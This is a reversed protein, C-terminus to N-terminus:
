THLPLGALNAVAVVLRHPDIPKTIHRQFGSAFAKEADERRAYATLAIAPTRGGESTSLGRVRRMLEYGDVDPMGVDSVIVDPRVSAVKALAEESSRAIEVGGGAEKLITAILEVVDEDDDVVLVRTGGLKPLPGPAPEGIRAPEFRASIKQMPIEVVLTAGRGKGESEAHVSGGHALVLQRVIALGLGLGGHHRTTSADEQRFPEFIASLMNPEIGEGTDRVVIHLNSRVHEATVTIEGGRPTFKVANAILNSVIQQLRVQDALLELDPEVHSIIMVGKSEAARETAEVADAIAQSANANGIDLRLKGSIIRAVDLMDEILRTQSRANREITEVPERLDPPLDRALLLKAWGLIASLPNRLEHSVTALFDDKARNALDAQERARREADLLKAREEELKRREIVLAARRALEEAFALDDDAYERGSEAFVFTLAGFIRERGRLPVVMASRLQLRRIMKRHEDDIAAAELLEQPIVRYLESHGTRIVNPVGTTANPDPPYKRGLDRAMTVKSPDVHAVALQVSQSAGPELVDVACWDALRPVALQVIKALSDRYDISALLEEGARLLFARRASERKEASVDRFVMVVGFLNSAGDRIPAASDDIPIDTGDRRVLVTHNALGVITGERLVRAVPDEVRTRTEENVIPFVERLVHGQGEALTWGTLTEAIANMFTVRGEVDTAIVADGISHLTTTWRAQAREARELAAALDIEARKRASIDFTVGFWERLNGVTDFLPVARAAMWVYEGDGRRMRFEDEFMRKELKAAGWSKALRARDDPHVPDWGRLGRWDEETQDTFARWSPSDANPHGNSDTTWVIANTAEVFTRYARDTMDHTVKAYGTVNGERDLLPTIIVSAWFKSGDKRVRWGNDEYRGERAAIELQRQSAGADDAPYFISFHKGIIEDADYGKIRKAGENWSVITGHPDLMFIAYDKISEVLVRFREDSPGDGTTTTM